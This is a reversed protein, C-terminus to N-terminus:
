SLREGTTPILLESAIQPAYAETPLWDAEQSFRVSTGMLSKLVFEPESKKQKEPLFVSHERKPAPMYTLDQPTPAEAHLRLLKTM